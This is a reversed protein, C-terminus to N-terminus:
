INEIAGIRIKEGNEVQQQIEWIYERATTSVNHEMKNYDPHLRFEKYADKLYKELRACKTPLAEIAEWNEEALEIIEECFLQRTEKSNLYDTKSKVETRINYHKFSNLLFKRQLGSFAVLRM